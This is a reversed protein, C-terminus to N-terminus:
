HGAGFLLVDLDEDSVPAHGLRTRAVQMAAVLKAQREATATHPDDQFQRWARMVEPPAHLGIRAMASAYRSLAEKSTDGMAVDAIAAIADSLAQALLDDATSRRENRRTLQAGLLVGGFGVVLGILVAAVTMAASDLDTGPM